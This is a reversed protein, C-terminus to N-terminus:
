KKYAKGAVLWFAFSKLSCNESCCGYTVPKPKKSSYLDFQKDQLLEISEVNLEESKYKIEEM